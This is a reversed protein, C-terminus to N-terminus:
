RTLLLAARKEPAARGGEVTKKWAVAVTAPLIVRLRDVNQRMDEAIALLEVDAFEAEVSETVNTSLGTPSPVVLWDSNEAM